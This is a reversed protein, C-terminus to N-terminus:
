WLILFGVRMEGIPLHNAEFNPLCVHICDPCLLKSFNSDHKVKFLFYLYYHCQRQFQHYHCFWSSIFLCIVLSTSIISLIECLFRLRVWAVKLGLCHVSNIQTKWTSCWYKASYGLFFDDSFLFIWTGHASRDSMVTFRLSFSEQDQNMQSQM